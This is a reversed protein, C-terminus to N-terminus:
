KDWDKERDDPGGDFIRYDWDVSRLKVEHFNIRGNGVGVVFGKRSGFTETFVTGPDQSYYVTDLNLIKEKVIGVCHRFTNGSDPGEEKRYVYWWTHLVLSSLNEPKGTKVYREIKRRLSSM